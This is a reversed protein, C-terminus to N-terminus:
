SLREEVETEGDVVSDILQPTIFNHPFPLPFKSIQNLKELHEAMLTFDLAQLNDEIHSLKRAGIIPITGGPQQLLWNLAVQSPSREIAQAIQKVQEGIKISRENLQGMSQSM